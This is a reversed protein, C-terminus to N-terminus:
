GRGDGPARDDPSLDAVRYLFIYSHTVSETAPSSPADAQARVIVVPSTFRGTEDSPDIELTAPSAACSASSSATPDSGDVTWCVTADSAGEASLVLSFPGDYFGREASFQLTLVPVSPADDPTVSDRTPSDPESDRSNTTDSPLSDRIATEATEKDVALGTRQCATLSALLLVAAKM